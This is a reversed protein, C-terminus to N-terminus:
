PIKIYKSMGKLVYRSATQSALYNLHIGDRTRIRVNRGKANKIYRIFREKGRSFMKWLPIYHINDFHSASEEHIANVAKIRPNLSRKETIPLGIWFTLLRHKRAIRMLRMTTKTYEDKWKRSEFRIYRKQDLSYLSHFDNTGIMVILVNAKRKKVLKELKKDWNYYNPFALGTSVVGKRHVRTNKSEMLKQQIFIGVYGGMMSDGIMLVNYPPTLHSRKTLLPHNSIDKHMVKGTMSENLPNSVKDKQAELIGTLGNKDSLLESKPLPKYPKIDDPPKSSDDNLLEGTAKSDETLNTRFPTNSVKSQDPNRIDQKLAVKKLHVHNLDMNGKKEFLILEESVSALFTNEIERIKDINAKERIWAVDKLFCLSRNTLRERWEDLLTRTEDMPIRTKERNLFASISESEHIFVITLVLVVMLVAKWPSTYTTNSDEKEKKIIAILEELSAM